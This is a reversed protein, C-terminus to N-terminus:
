GREGIPLVLATRGETRRFGAAKYIGLAPENLADAALTMRGKGAEAAQRLGLAVLRKGLGMGRASPCVGLYTLELVDQDAFVSLLLVAVAKGDVRVLTWLEADFIGTGQHGLFVEEISRLECLGPCDLTGVYSDAIVRKFDEKNGEAYSELTVGAPWDIKASILGSRAAVAIKREMYALEALRFFGAAEFAPVARREPKTLLVQALGVRKRDLNAALYQYLVANEGQRKRDTLHSAFVMATRGPNTMALATPYLEGDSRQCAFCQDLKLKTDDAFQVFRAAYESNPRGGGGGRELWLYQLASLLNERKVRVVADVGAPLLISEGACLDGSEVVEADSPAGRNPTEVPTESSPEPDLDPM